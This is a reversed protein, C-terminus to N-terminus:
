TPLRAMQQPLAKAVTPVRDLDIGFHTRYAALIEADGSLSRETREGGETIILRDGSLTVRGSATLISCTLSQHFHSDPWTQQFWCTPGFDALQYPRPDIRYAPTGDSVVDLDGHGSPSEAIRFVGDPGPQSGRHDLRLPRIAFRGFGVDVLWPEALDVRLTMHDFPPGPRGEAGFVRASLMSVRYGLERLLAAFAGNLEYCFGGRRRQVVKSVLADQDLVIPEGLHISLNEFPVAYLHALQLERLAGLDPSVPRPAGIRKLYEDTWHASQAM